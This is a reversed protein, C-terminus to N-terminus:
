RDEAPHGDETDAPGDAPRGSHPRGPAPQAGEVLDELAPLADQLLRLRDPALRGIREALLGTTERRVARLLALGDDNLSVLSARQDTPDPRRAIWGRDDLLEVMRSTTSLAINMRAALESIRLPGHAALAALAATRSPTLDRYPLRGRLLPLLQQIVARLRGALEAPEPAPDVPADVTADTREM